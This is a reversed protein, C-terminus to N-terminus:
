AGLMSCDYTRGGSYREDEVTNSLRHDREGDTERDRHRATETERYMKGNKLKNTQKHTDTHTHPPTPLHPWINSSHSHTPTHPLYHMISKTHPTGLALHHCHTHRHALSTRSHAPVTCTTHMHHPPAHPLPITPTHHHLNVPQNISPCISPRVSLGVSRNVSVAMMGVSGGLVCLDVCVGWCM